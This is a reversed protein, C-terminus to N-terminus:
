CMKGPEAHDLGQHGKAKRGWQAQGCTEADLWVLRGEGWLYM